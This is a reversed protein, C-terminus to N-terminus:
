YVNFRCHGPSLMPEGPYAITETLAAMKYDHQERFAPDTTMAIINRRSRYRFLAGQAWHEVGQLGLVDLADAVARGLFVPHNARKLQALYIHEMYHGILESADDQLFHGAGKVITQKQNVASPM